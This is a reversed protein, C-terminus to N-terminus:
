RYNDLRWISTGLTDWDHRVDDNLSEELGKDSFFQIVGCETLNQFGHSFGNAIYVVSGDNELYFTKSDDRKKEMYAIPNIVIRFKGSLVQCWKSEHNHGHFARIMRRDHEIIYSRRVAFMDFSNNYILTGRDDTFKAGPLKM